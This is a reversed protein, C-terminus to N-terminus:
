RKERDTLFIHALYANYSSTTHISQCKVILLKGRNKDLIYKNRNLVCLIKYFIVPTYRLRKKSLLNPCNKKTKIIFHEYDYQLYAVAVIVIILFTVVFYKTRKM